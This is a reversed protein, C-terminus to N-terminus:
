QQRQYLVSGDDQSISYLSVCQAKAIQKCVIDVALSYKAKATQADCVYRGEQDTPRPIQDTLRGADPLVGVNKANALATLCVQKSDSVDTERPPAPEAIQTEDPVAARPKHGFTLFAAVAIAIAFGCIVVALGITWERKLARIDSQEMDM